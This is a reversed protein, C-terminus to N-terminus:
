KCLDVLPTGPFVPMGGALAAKYDVCAGTKDGAYFKALARANFYYGPVNVPKMIEIAKDYNSIAKAYEKKAVFLDGMGYYAPAGYFVSPAKGDLAIVWKYDKEAKDFEKTQIYASARNLYLAYLNISDNEDHHQNYVELAKNSLSIKQEAESIPLEAAYSLYYMFTGKVPLVMCSTMYATVYTNGLELAKSFDECALISKRQSQYVLGRAYYATSNKSDKQIAKAYYKLGEDPQRLQVYCNGCNLYYNSNVSDLGIARKYDEIAGDYILSMQLNYGRSYYLAASEEAKLIVNYDAVAMAYLGSQQYLYARNKRALIYGPNITIAQSYDSVAGALDASYTKSQGRMYYLEAGKYGAAEAENYKEQALTDRSMFFYCNGVKYTTEGKVAGSKIASNYTTIAEKYNKAVYFSDAKVLLKGPDQAKLFTASFFLLTVLLIKMRCNLSKQQSLLSAQPIIHFRPEKKLQTSSNWSQNYFYRPFFYTMPFIFERGM